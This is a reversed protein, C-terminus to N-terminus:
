PRAGHQAIDASSSAVGDSGRVQRALVKLTIWALGAYVIAFTIFPLWLGPVPTAADSTRMVGYITWPQRGVETVIWGAEM